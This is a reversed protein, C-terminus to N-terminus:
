PLPSRQRASVPPTQAVRQVSVLRLGLNHVKRLVGFLASQDALTGRLMTTAPSPCSIVLHEFWDSWQSDLQGEVVIEYLTSSPTDM